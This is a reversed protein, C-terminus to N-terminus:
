IRDEANPSKVYKDAMQAQQRENEKIVKWQTTQEEEGLIAMSIYQINLSQM